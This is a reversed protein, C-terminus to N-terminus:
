LARLFKIIADLDGPALKAKFSPMHGAPNRTRPAIVYDRVYKEDRYSFIKPQALDWGAIGGAGSLSHCHQCHRQFLVRGQKSALTAATPPAFDDSKVYELAAVSFTFGNEALDLLNEFDPHDVNPWALFIPGRPPALPTPKEGQYEMTAFIAEPYRALLRLPVITLWGDDCRVAIADADNPAALQRLVVGFRVGIFKKPKKGDTPDRVSIAETPLRRLDVKVERGGGRLVLTQAFGTATSFLIAAAVAFRIM